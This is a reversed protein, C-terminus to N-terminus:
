VLSARDWRRPVSDRQYPEQTRLTMVHMVIDFIQLRVPLSCQPFEQATAKHVTVTITPRSAHLFPVITPCPLPPLIIIIDVYGLIDSHRKGLAVVM